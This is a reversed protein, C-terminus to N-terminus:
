PRREWVSHARFGDRTELSHELRNFPAPEQARVAAELAMPLSAPGLEPHGELVVGSETFQERPARTEEFPHTPTYDLTFERLVACVEAGRAAAHEATELVLVGAGDALREPPVPPAVRSFHHRVLFNDQHAVGGVIAVDIRGSRLSAAAEDLASYLQGKGPYTTVYPGQVDLNTSVHFAPMNSLCRFTILPNVAEYGGTAFAPMSFAGDELSGELLRDIDSQVFPLYGVALYLGVREPDALPRPLGAAEAAKGAAVVALCDQTAMYKRMKRVKLFPRPDAGAGASGLGTVVLETM